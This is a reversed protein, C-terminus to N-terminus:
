LKKDALSKKLAALLRAYAAEGRLADLDPDKEMADLDRMGNRIAAELARLAGKKEGLRSRICALNFWAQGSGPDIILALEILAGAKKLEGRGYAQQSLNAAEMFLYRLLREATLGAVGADGRERRLGAIGLAELLDRRERVSAANAFAALTGAVRVFRRMEEKGAAQLAEGRKKMKDPGGLRAASIQARGVDVLGGFDAALALYEDQAEVSSGSKEIEQARRLGAEFRSAIWPENKKQTGRKMAQLELWSVADMAAEGPMWAHGGTFVQLRQALGRAKLAVAIDRSPWYNFDYLGTAIFTALEGPLSEVPMSEPLGGCCSIVGAWPRELFLGFLLAVKAGGSHGASYVRDEDISFRRRTDAWVARLALRIPEWPGNRSNNSCALIYGYKEAAAQFLRIPLPGRAGPEFFYIIPWRRNPDYASPLYLAYSQGDYDACAVADVPTGRPPDVAAGASALALGAWLMATLPLVLRAKRQKM